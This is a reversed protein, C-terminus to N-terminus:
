LYNEKTEDIRDELKRIWHIKLADLVEGVDYFGDHNSVVVYGQLKPDYCAVTAFRHLVAHGIVMAVPLSMPGNVLLVEGGGILSMTEEITHVVESVILNNPATEGFSCDIIAEHSSDSTAAIVNYYKSM